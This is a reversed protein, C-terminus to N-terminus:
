KETAQQTPQVGSQLVQEAESKSQVCTEALTGDPQRTVVSYSAMDDNVRVGVAGSSHRKPLLAVVGKAASKTSGAKAASLAAAEDATPARLEGTVADKVVIMSNAGDHAQAPLALAGALAAVGMMSLSRIKM